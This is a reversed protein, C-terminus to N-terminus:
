NKNNNKEMDKKSGKTKGYKNKLAKELPSSKEFKYFLVVSLLVIFIVLMLISFSGLLIWYIKADYPSLVYLANDSSSNKGTPYYDSSLEYKITM